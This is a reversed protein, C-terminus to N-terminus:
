EEARSADRKRAANRAIAKLKRQEEKGLRRYRGPRLGEMDLNAFKMRRLKLVPYGMAACMRKVLHNRGETVTLEIWANARSQRRGLDVRHVYEARALGDELDVGFMLGELDKDSPLGKLKTRYVKPVEGAPHTLAAAMDGDNTLLLLGEADRDLRGVPFVRADVGKLLDLVTRRDFEDASTTVVEPPKNIIIYTWARPIEIVKGDVEIRATEPNAKVGLEKVIQGDVRVRGATILAEAKRRSTIGARAIIKQLRDTPM